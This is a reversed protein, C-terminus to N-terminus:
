VLLVSGCKAVTGRTCSERQICPSMIVSTFVGYFFVFVRLLLFCVRLWCDRFNHQNIASQSYSDDLLIPSRSLGHVSVAIHSQWHGPPAVVNRTSGLLSFLVSHWWDQNRSAEWHGSVAQRDGWQSWEWFLSLLFSCCHQKELQSSGLFM